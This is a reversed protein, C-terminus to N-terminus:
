FRKSDEYNEFIFKVYTIKNYRFNSQTLNLEQGSEEYGYRSGEKLIGPCYDTKQIGGEESM